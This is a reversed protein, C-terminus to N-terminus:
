LDALGKAERRQLHQAVHHKWSRHRRDEGAQAVAQGMGPNSQDTDLQQGRGLPQAVEQDPPALHEPEVRHQDRHDDDADNAKDAVLRQSHDFGPQLAPPDITDWLVASLVTPRPSTRGSLKSTSQSNALWEPR